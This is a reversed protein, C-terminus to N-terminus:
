LVPGTFDRDYPTGGETGTLAADPCPWERHCGTCLKTDLSTFWHVHRRLAERLRVAEAEAREARERWHATMILETETM